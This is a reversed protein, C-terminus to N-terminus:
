NKTISSIKDMASIIKEKTPFLPQNYPFDTKDFYVPKKLRSNPNEAILKEQALGEQQDRNFLHNGNYHSGEQHAFTARASALGVRLNVM